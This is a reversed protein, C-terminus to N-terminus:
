KAEINLHSIDAFPNMMYFQGVMYTDVKYWSYIQREREDTIIYRVDLANGLPSDIVRRINGHNFEVCDKLLEYRNMYNRDYNPNQDRDKNLRMIQLLWIITDVAEEIRIASTLRFRESVMRQVRKRGSVYDSFPDFKKESLKSSICLTDDYGMFSTNVFIFGAARMGNLLSTDTFIVDELADYVEAAIAKNLDVTPISQGTSDLVPTTKAKELILSGKRNPAVVALLRDSTLNLKSM